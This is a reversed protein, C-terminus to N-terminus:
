SVKEFSLTVLMDKLESGPRFNIKADKITSSLVSAEKDQGNASLTLYMSGLDGLRVIQGNSLEDVIVKVFNNIASYADGESLASAIAIRKSIEKFTIEGQSVATAYYKKPATPKSPNGKEVAKFKVPM